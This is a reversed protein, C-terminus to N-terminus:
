IRYMCRVRVNFNSTLNCVALIFQSFQFNQQLCRALVNILAAVESFTSESM